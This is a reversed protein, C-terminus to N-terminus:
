HRPGGRGILEAIIANVQVRAADLGRGTDVVFDAQRRKEADPVQKALISALKEETMGPRALVRERQTEAPATVVVVKDVRNRGGTEFLLPIDLAAISESANRHKALFADADARVLPHIIAELRKLAAADGLVRAGLKARDVVGALTTGPFAAEVLPAAKGAYLRHVAEDSDHVPVGADAFMRATTSKGMGISGTLGLVIM